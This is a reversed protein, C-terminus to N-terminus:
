RDLSTSVNGVTYGFRPEIGIIRRAEAPTAVERGLERALRVVREVLQANSSALVGRSYYINDEFGTRVHGGMLIALTNMPLQHRGMAAVTWTAHTRIQSVLHQLNAPTAAVGGAVGMVFDYHVPDSILGKEVLRDATPLMGLDFVEIEPRIGKAQIERAFREVVPLPNEFVEDGFNVTGVTLTAMEPECLLPGLREEASMGTAGGTSVQVILDTGERVRQIIEGFVEASQTASEDPNRGHVHVVSAGAEWARKAEAAIQAPSIPVHPTQKRTVEAGVPAVTIILKSM